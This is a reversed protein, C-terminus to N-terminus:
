LGGGPAGALRGVEGFGGCGISALIPTPM